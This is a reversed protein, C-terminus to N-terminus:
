VPQHAHEATHFVILDGLRTSLKVGRVKASLEGSAGKWEVKFWAPWFSTDDLRADVVQGNVLYVDLRHHERAGVPAFTDAGGPAPWSM